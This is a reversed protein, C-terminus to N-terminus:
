AAAKKRRVRRAPYSALTLMVVVLLGGVLSPLYMLPWLAADGRVTDVLTGRLGDIAILLGFAVVVERWVGFRSYSGVMLTAYGILAAILCFLPQAFRSHVEEAVDGLREGAKEALADWGTILQPTTLNRISLTRESDRSVLASIDFSFDKFKATSLRKDATSLRQALGDVMILTTASGNRVLYAEAATYIAGQASNRRDSLFVDRLVGDADIQRTYFTVLPAPHLFVGETLLRATVNRSIEAERRTLQDQALPVLFHTLISMMAAVVLGYVFVPRALRWPGSGTSQLVVMESEGSMRNTVYVSGAFAAIPLVTTILKPLGLVTFELFVIASQNDGILRDFLLVARNIWFLAVLVLAFFGFLVLLQSLMYRDIRAM